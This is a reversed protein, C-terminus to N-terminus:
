SKAANPKEPIEFAGYLCRTIAVGQKVGAFYLTHAAMKPNGPFLVAKSDWLEEFSRNIAALDNEAVLDDEKTVM